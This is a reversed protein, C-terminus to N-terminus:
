TNRKGIHCVLEAIVVVGGLDSLCFIVFYLLYDASAAEHLSARKNADIAKVDAQRQLLWIAEVAGAQAAEYLPTRKNTNAAKVDYWKYAAAM